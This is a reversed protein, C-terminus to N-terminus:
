QKDGDIKENEKEGKELSKLANRASVKMYVQEGDKGRPARIREIGSQTERIQAEAYTVGDRVADRNFAALTNDKRKRGM